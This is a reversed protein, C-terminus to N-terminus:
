PDGFAMEDFDIVHIRDGDVLVNTHHFDAHIACSTTIRSEIESSVNELFPAVRSRLDSRIRAVVEGWRSLSKVEDRARRRASVPFRLRHLFALAEATEVVRDRFGSAKVLSGLRVGEVKEQLTLRPAGFYGAPRPMPFRKGSTEWLAWSDAFLKGTKKFANTKGILDVKEKDGTDLHRRKVEYLMSGRMQPTYGLLTVRVKTAKWREGAWLRSFRRKLGSTDLGEVLWPMGPDHPFTSLVMRPRDVCFYPGPLIGAHVRGFRRIEAAGPQAPFEEGDKLLRATVMQRKSKGGGRKRVKFQFLLNCRQGPDYNVDTIKASLIERDLGMPALAEEVLATMREPDFAAALHPFVPDAIEHM